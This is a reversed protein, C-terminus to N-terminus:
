GAIRVKLHPLVGNQARTVLYRLSRIVSGCRVSLKCVTSCFCFTSPGCKLHEWTAMNDGTWVPGVRQTGAFMARSLVFPRAPSDGGRRRLGEATAAHYYLGYVNHM